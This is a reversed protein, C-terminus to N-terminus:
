GLSRAMPKQLLVHKGSGLLATAQEVHLFNPTSVVAYDAEARVAVSIDSSAEHAGLTAAITQAAAYDSDICAVVRLNPISGYIALYNRSFGGCGVIVAKLERENM